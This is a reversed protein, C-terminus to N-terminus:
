GSISSGSCISQLEQIEDSNANLAAFNAIESEILWRFCFNGPDLKKFNISSVM